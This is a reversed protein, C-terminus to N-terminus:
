SATNRLPDHMGVHFDIDRRMHLYANTNGQKMYPIYHHQTFHIGEEILPELRGFDSEEYALHHLVPDTLISVADTFRPVIPRPYGTKEIVSISELAGRYNLDRSNKPGQRRWEDTIELAEDPKQYLVGCFQLALSGLDIQKELYKEREPIVAWEGVSQMIRLSGIWGALQYEDEPSDYLANPRSM